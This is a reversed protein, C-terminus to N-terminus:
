LHQESGRRVFLMFSKCKEAQVPVVFEQLFELFRGAVLGRAVSVVILRVVESKKLCSRRNRRTEKAVIKGSVIKAVFEGSSHRTNVRTVRTTFLTRLGRNERTPRAVLFILFASFLSFSFERRFACFM